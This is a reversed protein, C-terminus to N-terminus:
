FSWRINTQISRMSKPSAPLGFQASGLVANWSAFAVHNLANAVNVNLNVRNRDSIRFARSLTGNLTFQSPGAISNRGAAGWNGPAPAKYAAPNLHLGPPADYIEAGTRDPRMPGTVGTGSIAYSYVPTQPLGSAANIQSAFTWGKYFAGRWGKLFAGSKAGMGTTYQFQIEAVHRQDFSSLAREAGPNRWDQATFVGSAGSSGPAADDISKSFTYQVTASLGNHLRRRLQLVGAERNSRGNSTLYRFGSPCAPCPNTSGAPYSNPLIEQLARRGRTGQYISTLQLAGPLDIQVSLQWFHVYGIRLDPDVAFTNAATNPSANFGDALTLPNAATNQLSLSKSLPSQQAMQMAISAYPSSNYYVGYGGKLVLSSGALPKWAAGIRPQFARKCPRLLSDPYDAGTLAGSPRNAVVPAAASFGPALDLNVLRGYRETVPAWYEWRLGINLTFSRSLRWDDAISANYSSSRFYKDANGFAIAVTDPIGLLFGAFDNRAGAIPIGPSSPDLTSTGNFRFSGRPNQQAIRNEQQRRYGAGFTVNQNGRSWYGSATAEGTQSHVSSPLADSLGALGGSFVLAPPGWNVEEQNNGAIGALGSINERNAFFPVSRNSQRNFQFGFTMSFRQTFSRRWSVNVSSGLSRSADLFGFLSQNDSRGSQLSFTGYLLNSNGVTKDLVAFVSDQQAVGAVPVQYNYQASGTFNPLPYLNLLSKAQRSIRNEPIRNDTFPLRSEPDFIRGPSQSLDGNREAVTPVLGTLTQVNRNRTFSYGVSFNPGNRILRPIRLPGSFSVSGGVNNYGRKPTDIGALSYPRADLTSNNVNVSVSGNYPSGVLSRFNGFARSQAYPSSAGNQSSGSILLGDAARQNLEAMDQGAFAGSPPAEGVIEAGTARVEARQFAAPANAPNSAADKGSKKAPIDAAPAPSSQSAASVIPKILNPIRDIPLLKLEWQEAAAGPGIGVDRQISSFAQMEIRINWLGDDLGSFRYGGEADTVVVVKQDGRSATAVAGPVGMGNFVVRGRHEGAEVFASCLLLLGCLRVWFKAAAAPREPM